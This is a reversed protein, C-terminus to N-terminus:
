QASENDVEMELRAAAWSEPYKDMMYRARPSDPAALLAAKLIENKEVATIWARRDATLSHWRIIELTGAREEELLAACLDPVQIEAEVPVTEASVFENPIDTTQMREQRSCLYLSAAKGRYLEELADPFYEVYQLRGDKSFGYTYEFNRIGYLLAMPKCGSLCVQRPKGFYPSLSPVLAALGAVPSGHYLRM